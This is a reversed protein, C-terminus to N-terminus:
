DHYVGELQERLRECSRKVRMKLASIGAGTVEAMEEYSLEEVHKLVFAERQRVDLKALAREIDERAHQRGSADAAFAEAVAREDPVVRRARRARRFAVSRCENVVIAYIWAGFREPTTCRDLHRFARLWASQLADDADFRDGLMRVAFRMHADRYRTTLRSFADLDGGLVAAADPVCRSPVVRLVGDGGLGARRDCLRRVLGADLRSEPWVTGDPDPLVVFDNETGHGLLVRPSASDIV